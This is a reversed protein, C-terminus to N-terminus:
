ANHLAELRKKVDEEKRTIEKLKKEAEGIDGRVHKIDDETKWREEETEHREKELRYREDALMREEGLSKAVLVKKATDAADKELSEEKSQTESLLAEVRKRESELESIRDEASGREELIKDLDAKLERRKIEIKLDHIRKRISEEEENLKKYEAEEDKIEGLVAELNEKVKWKREDIGRMKEIVEWRAQEKSRRDDSGVAASREESEIRALEAAVGSAEKQIPALAEEITRRTAFLKATHEEIEKRKKGHEGLDRELEEVQEPLPQEDAKDPVVNPEVEKIAAILEADGIPMSGSSRDPIDPTPSVPPLAAGPIVEDDLSVPNGASGEEAFPSREVGALTAPQSPPSVPASPVAPPRTPKHPVSLHADSHSVPPLADDTIELVEPEHPPIRLAGSDDRLGGSVPAVPVHTPESPPPVSPAPTPMGNRISGLRAADGALTRM